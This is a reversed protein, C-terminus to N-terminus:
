FVRYSHQSRILTAPDGLVVEQDVDVYSHAPPNQEGRQYLENGAATMVDIRRFMERTGAKGAGIEEILKAELRQRLARLKWSAMRAIVVPLTKVNNVPKISKIREPGVSFWGGAGQLLARYTPVYDELLIAITDGGNTTQLRVQTGKKITTM